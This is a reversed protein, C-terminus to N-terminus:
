YYSVGILLVNSVVPNCSFVHIYSLLDSKLKIRDDCEDYPTIFRWLKLLYHTHMYVTM